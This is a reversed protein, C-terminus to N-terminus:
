QRLALVPGLDLNLQATNRKRHGCLNMWTYAHSGVLGHIGLNQKSSLFCFKKRNDKFITGHLDSVGPSDAQPSVSAPMSSFLTLLYSVGTILKLAQNWGHTISHVNASHWLTERGWKSEQLVKLQITENLILLTTKEKWVIWCPFNQLGSQFNTTLQGLM